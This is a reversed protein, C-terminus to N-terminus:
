WKVGPYLSPIRYARYFLSNSADMQWVVQPSSGTTVELVRSYAGDPTTSDLELNGNPLVAVSGGWLSFFGPAYQWAIQATLAAEDADIIVARSYCSSSVDCSQGSSDPRTNGNDYLALRLSSGQSQLLVPFHQDYFWQAPDSDSLTFDGGPGLRWLVDGSGAGDAYDIKVIWNQHRISLLLSGDPAHVIANSHTWDPFQYPRRNIDLHDFADWVWVPRNNADLDVLADGLVSTTGPLGQLDQFDRLENVLLIWHGNRLRLADHHITNAQLPYGAAALATNLQDLTISRVIRGELNVERVETTFGILYNGNDLERIPSALAGQPLKPDYYYWIVSGDTDLVVASVDPVLACLLEVGGNKALGAPSVTTSPFSVQPLPGTTFTHDSDYVSLGSAFDVRARMHYTTNARMGAVLFQATGGGVALTQSATHRGYSTDTGFEVTVQAASPVPITYQAVLPHSTSTVTGPTPLSAEASGSGRGSPASPTGCGVSVLLICVGCFLLM